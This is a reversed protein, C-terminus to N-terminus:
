FAAAKAARLDAEIDRKNTPPMLANIFSSEIRALNITKNPLPVFNFFLDGAWNQLMFSVAPRGDEKRQNALYQGYRKYLNAAESEDGTIGVYLIYGHAPLKAPSLEATFAYIGREKPVTAQGAEDFRVKQWDLRYRSRFARWKKLDLFFDYLEAKYKKTQNVLDHHKGAVSGGNAAKWSRM